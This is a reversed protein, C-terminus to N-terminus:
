EESVIELPSGLNVFKDQININPKRTTRSRQRRECYWINKLDNRLRFIQYVELIERQLHEWRIVDNKKVYDTIWEYIFDKEEPVFPGHQVLYLFFNLKLKENLILTLIILKSSLPEM